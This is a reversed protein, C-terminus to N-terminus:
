IVLREKEKTLNTELHKIRKPVITFPTKKFNRQINIKHGAAKSFENKELLKKSATKLTEQTSYSTM